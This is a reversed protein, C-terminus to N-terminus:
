FHVFFTTGIGAGGALILLCLLTLVIESAIRLGLAARSSRQECKLGLNHILSGSGLICILLIVAYCGLLYLSTGDAFFSGGGAFLEGWSSANGTFMAKYYAWVQTVDKIEFIVWACLVIVITYIRQILIPLKELLPSLFLQEVAILVGLVLGWLLFNWGNGYWLGMLAWLLILRFMTILFSDHKKGLPSIVYSKCWVTLSINWRRWFDTLSKATYPSNFNMPFEFGLIKAIGRAMDTYGSFYFYIGFAFGLIGLWATLVPLTAYDMEKVTKWLSLMTDALVLKKALGRIFLNYGKSITNANTQRSVVTESIDSYRVIPGCIMQPFMSLYMAFSIFHRQVKVRNRYLDALYSIGQLTYISIGIPILFDFGLKSEAPLTLFSFYFLKHKMFLLCIVNICVGIILPVRARKKSRRYRYISLGCLYDAVILCALVPLAPLASCAYFVLNELLLVLNRYRAPTLLYVLVAAPLFLFIFPISSFVM